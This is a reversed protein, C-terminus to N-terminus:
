TWQWGRKNSSTVVLGFITGIGAFRRLISSSFLPMVAVRRTLWTLAFITLIKHQNRVFLSFILFRMSFLWEKMNECTNASLEFAGCDLRLPSASYMRRYLHNMSNTACKISCPTNLLSSFIGAPGDLRDIRIIGHRSIDAIFVKLWVSMWSFNM